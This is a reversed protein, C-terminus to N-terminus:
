VTVSGNKSVHRAKFIVEPFLIVKAEQTFEDYYQMWILLYNLRNKAMWDALEYNREVFKFEQIFGRNKILAKRDSIVVGDNLEITGAPKLKDEGPEFFCFGLVEEAFTYVAYLIEVEGPGRFVLKDGEVTVSYADTGCVDFVVDIGEKESVGVCTSRGAMSVLESFALELTESGFSKNKIAVDKCLRM